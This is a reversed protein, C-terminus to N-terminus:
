PKWVKRTVTETTQTNRFPMKDAPLPPLPTAGQPWGPYLTKVTVEVTGSKPTPVSWILGDTGPM